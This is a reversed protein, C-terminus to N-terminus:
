KGIKQSAEWSTARLRILFEWDEDTKPQVNGYRLCVLRPHVVLFTVTPTVPDGDEDLLGMEARAEEITTYMGHVGSTSFLCLNLSNGTADPFITRLLDMAEETPVAYVNYHAGERNFVSNRSSEFMPGSFQTMMEREKRAGGGASVRPVRPSGHIPSSGRTTSQMRARWRRV